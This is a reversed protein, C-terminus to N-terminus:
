RSTTAAAVGCSSPATTTRTAGTAARTRSIWVAAPVADLVTQLEAARSRAREESERLAVEARKRDTIDQMAGLLYQEGGLSVLEGRVFTVRTGNTRTFLEM